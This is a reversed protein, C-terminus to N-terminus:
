EGVIEAFIEEEIKLHNSEFFADMKSTEENFQKELEATQVDFEAKNINEIEAIRKDADRGLKEKLENSQQEAQQLITKKSEAAEAIRDNAKKDIEIIKNVVSEM